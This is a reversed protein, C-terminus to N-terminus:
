PSSSPIRLKQLCKKRPRRGRLRLSLPVSRSRRLRYQERVSSWIGASNAASTAEYEGVHSSLSVLSGSDDERASDSGADSEGDDSVESEEGNEVKDTAALM